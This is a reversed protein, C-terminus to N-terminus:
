DATHTATHTHKHTHSHPQTLSMHLLCPASLINVFPMCFKSGIGVWIMIM